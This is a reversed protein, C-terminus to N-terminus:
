FVFAAWVLQRKRQRSVVSTRARNVTEAAYRWVNFRLTVNVLYNLAKSLRLSLSYVRNMHVTIHRSKKQVVGLLLQVLHGLADKHAQALQGFLLDPRAARLM